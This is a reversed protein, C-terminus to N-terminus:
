EISVEVIDGDASKVDVIKGSLGNDIAESILNLDINEMGEVSDSIPIKGVTKLMIKIFKVPLKVNVNDGEHSNVKIRLMKEMIDENSNAATSEVLQANKDKLSEILEQAEDATLKGEEVMKLIKAIEENM